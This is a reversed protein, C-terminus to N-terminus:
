NPPRLWESVPRAVCRADDYAQPLTLVTQGEYNGSELLEVVLAADAAPPDTLCLPLLFNLRDNAPYYAPVAYKYDWEILKKAREVAMGFGNELSERAIRDTTLVQRLKALLAGRQANDREARDFFEALGPLGGLERRLFAVPLRELNGVLIHEVNPVLTRDPDYLLDGIRSVYEARLPLHPIKRILERSLDSREVTCFGAWSFKATNEGRRLCAYIDNFSSSILGTNFAAFMGDDSICIHSGGSFGEVFEPRGIGNKRIILGDSWAHRTFTGRLYNELISSRKREMSPLWSWREELALDALQGLVAQPVRSIGCFQELADIPRFRVPTGAEGVTLVNMSVYCVFWPKYWPKDEQGNKVSPRVTVEAYSKPAEDASLPVPFVIKESMQGDRRLVGKRRAAAWATELLQSVDKEDMGKLLSALRARMSQPVNVSRSISEPAEQPGVTGKNQGRLSLVHDCVALAAKALPGDWDVQVQNSTRSKPQSAPKPVYSVLTQPGGNQVVDRFSLFGGNEVSFDQLMAKLKSYGQEKWLIGAESLVLGIWATALEVGPKAGAAVLADEISKGLDKDPDPPPASKSKILEEALADKVLGGLQEPTEFFQVTHKKQLREKFEELKVAGAGREIFAGRVEAKESLMFIKIKAGSEVACDYEHETFSKGDEYISGYMFGVILVFYRCDAVKSRCVELPPRTHAGFSEMVVPILELRQIAKFTADRQEQLDTATSSVFVKMDRKMSVRGERPECPRVLDLVAKM